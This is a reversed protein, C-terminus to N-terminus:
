LFYDTYEVFIKIKMHECDIKLLLTKYWEKTDPTEIILKFNISVPKDEMVFRLKIELAVLM